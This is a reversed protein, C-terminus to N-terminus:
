PIPSPRDMHREITSAWSPRRHAAGLGLPPLRNLSRMGRASTDASLQALHPRLKQQLKPLDHIRDFGVVLELDHDEFAGDFTEEQVVGIEVFKDAASDVDALREVIVAADEM